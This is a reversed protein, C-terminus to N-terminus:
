DFYVHAYKHTINRYVLSISHVMSVYTSYVKMMSWKVEGAVTEMNISKVPVFCYSNLKIPKITDKTLTNNYVNQFRCRSLKYFRNKKNDYLILTLM